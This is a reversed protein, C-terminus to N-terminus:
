WETPKYDKLFQGFINNGEAVGVLVPDLIRAAADVEDIPTQFNHREAIQMCRLTQHAYCVHVIM